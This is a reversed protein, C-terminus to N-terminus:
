ISGSVHLQFVQEYMYFDNRKLTEIVRTLEFEALEFYENIRIFYPIYCIKYYNTCKFLECMM